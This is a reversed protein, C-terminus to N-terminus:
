HQKRKRSVTDKCAKSCDTFSIEIEDNILDATAKYKRNRETFLVKDVFYDKLKTEVTRAIERAGFIKSFGKEAIFSLCSDSIKLTIGKKLLDAIFKDTSKKVIRIINEKTLSNFTIISDLRNRFEPSFIKDVAEKVSAGKIEREGFGMQFKGIDRAGANSTMIIIVNRFDAKRGNNDTLTAYDMVQLLTNFIDQHAKEIEDLLLVCHPTNRIADTLLGGEEYGVYGPPAGILRAVTHKEQYESMDFRHISIGLSLALQKALETKGVGTPGAFLFSAIPKEPDSFGARSKKIAWVTKSIAEDQGFISAKLNDELMRLKLTDTESVTNEPIHAIKSIIREVDEVTIIVTNKDPRKM